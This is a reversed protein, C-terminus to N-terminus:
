GYIRRYMKLTAAEWAQASEPLPRGSEICEARHMTACHVLRGRGSALAKRDARALEAVTEPNVPYGLSQLTAAVTETVPMSVADSAPANKVIANSM